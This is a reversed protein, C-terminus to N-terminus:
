SQPGTSVFRFTVDRVYAGSFTGRTYAKGNLAAYDIVALVAIDDVGDDDALTVAFSEGALLASEMAIVLANLVAVPLQYIRAGFRLGSLDSTDAVQAHVSSDLATVVSAIATGRLSEGDLVDIRLPVDNTDELAVGAISGEAYRSM